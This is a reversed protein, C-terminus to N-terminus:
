LPQWSQGIFVEEHWQACRSHHLFRCAQGTSSVSGGLGGQRSSSLSVLSLAAGKADAIEAEIEMATAAAASAAASRKKAKLYRRGPCKPQSPAMTARKPLQGNM